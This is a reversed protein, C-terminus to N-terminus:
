EARRGGAPRARIMGTHGSSFGPHIPPRTGIRVPRSTARMGHGQALLMPCSVIVLLVIACFTIALTALSAGPNGRAFVFVQM